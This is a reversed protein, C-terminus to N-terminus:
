PGQQLRIQKGPGEAFKEFIHTMQWCQELTGRVPPRGALVAEAFEKVEDYYGLLFLGKSYLQGLLFEPEWYAATQETPGTYYTPRNGYGPNKGDDFGPGQFYYLRTNEVVIGKQRTGTIKLRENGGHNCGGHTFLLSAVAGGDYQFTAAGAGNAARHYVMEDPMGLLYILVSMPHCLHDLFRVTEQVPQGADFYARLQEVTPLIEERELLVLMPDGFKEESMLQKAKTHTQFFMRKLGCLVIKGTERSAQMMGEVDATTAAPPKEIWVHVGRRMCDAAIQPYIPRGREDFGLVLFVADLDEQDLMERYDTYASRAGFKKAFARAKDEILDCTAVLDVPTFPFVPLVNRFGHSGCGIFGARIEPEDVVKGLFNIRM